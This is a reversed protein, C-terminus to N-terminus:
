KGAKGFKVNNITWTGPDDAILFIYADNAIAWDPHAAVLASWNAWSDGSFNTYIQCTPDNIVDVLGAGDNCYYASVFLYGDSTADGNTDVPISFRPSGATAADGSYQFSLQTIDSLLSNYVTSNMLYLGSYNNYPDADGDNNNLTASGKAGKSNLTCTGHYGGDTTGDFCQIKNQGPATNVPAAFASSAVFLTALALVVAIMVNTQLTSFTLRHM